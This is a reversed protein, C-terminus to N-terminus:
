YIKKLKIGTYYYKLIEEFNYAHDAALVIAGYASMGVGHGYLTTKDYGAPEQVGRCWAIDGGWVESWSRTRGDSHSFYPTIAIKNNYTVVQGKTAEVAQSVKPLRTQSGYGKYVQDYRADITFYEDAHKTGRNYHHMAYTRAATILAKQYELPSSNSSEALGKLYTELPLENIVWLRGTASSYRIELDGLYKNDNLSPNWGPRNEYSIIEFVNNQTNAKLSLYSGTSGSQSGTFSYVKSSFNFKFNIQNNSSIKALLRNNKDKIAFGSSAKIIIPETTHFLGVRILPGNSDDTVPTVPAPSINSDSNDPASNNNPNTGIPEPDNYINDSLDIGITLCKDVLDQTITTSIRFKKVSLELCTRGLQMKEDVELKPLPKPSPAPKPKTKPKVITKNKKPSEVKKNKPFEGADNWVHMTIEFESGALIKGTGYNVLVFKETYVGAEKPAELAFKYYALWGPKAQVDKLWAPTGPDRWFTHRVFTERNYPPAIKLDVSNAGTRPWTYNTKNKFGVEFTFGQGKIINIERHSQILKLAEGEAAQAQNIQFPNLLSFARESFPSRISQDLHALIQAVIFIVLFAMIISIFFDLQSKKRIVAQNKRQNYKWGFSTPNCIKM